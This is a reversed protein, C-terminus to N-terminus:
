SVGEANRFILRGFREKWDKLLNTPRLEYTIDKRSASLKWVLRSLSLMSSFFAAL